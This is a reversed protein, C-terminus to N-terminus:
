RARRWRRPHDRTVGGVRGGVSVDLRLKRYFQSVFPLVSDGGEIGRLEELTAARSILDFVGVGDVSLVTAKHDLDTLTQIVHAVCEVRARTTLANQFPATAKELAPNIQQAITRAVLRRFVDGVVIGRIGGSPKRVVSPNRSPCSRERFVAWIGM